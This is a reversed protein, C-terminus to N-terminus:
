ERLPQLHADRDLGTLARHTSGEQHLIRRLSRIAQLREIAARQDGGIM